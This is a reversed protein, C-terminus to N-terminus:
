PRERRARAAEPDEAARRGAAGAGIWTILAPIATGIMPWIPWYYYPTVGAFLWTSLWIVNFLAALGLWSRLAGDQVKRAKVAPAPAVRTAVVIDSLLPVLEGLRKSALVGSLRESHEISDLRGDSFAANIAEAAVDRDADSARVDGHVRPDASFRTWVPGPREPLQASMHPPGETLTTGGAYGACPAQGAADSIM